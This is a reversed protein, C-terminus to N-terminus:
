ELGQTVKIQSNVVTSICYSLKDNWSEDDDEKLVLSIEHGEQLSITINHGKVLAEMMEHLESKGVPYDLANFVKRLRWRLEKLTAWIFLFRHSLSLLLMFTSLFAIALFWWEERQTKGAYITVCSLRTLPIAILLPVWWTTVFHRSGTLVYEGEFKLPEKNNKHGKGEQGAKSSRM